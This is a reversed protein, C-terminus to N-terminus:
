KSWSAMCYDLSSPVCLPSVTAGEGILCLSLELAQQDNKPMSDAPGSLGVVVIRRADTVCSHDMSADILEQEELENVSRGDSWNASWQSVCWCEPCRVHPGSETRYLAVVMHVQPVQTSDNATAVAEADASAPNSQDINSEDVKIESSLHSGASQGDLIARNSGDESAIAPSPPSSSMMRFGVALVLCAAIAAVARRMRARSKMRAAMLNLLLTPQRSSPEAVGDILAGNAIDGEFEELERARRLLKQANLENM